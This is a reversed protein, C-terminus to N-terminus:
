WVAFALGIYLGNRGAIAEGGIMLIATLAGLLAATKLANM